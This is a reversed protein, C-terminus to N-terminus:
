LRAHWGAWLPAVKAHSEVGNRVQELVPRADVLDLIQGSIAVQSDDILRFSQGQKLPSFQQLLLAPQTMGRAWFEVVLVDVKYGGRPMLGERAFAWADATDTAKRTAQKGREIAAEQSEGEFRTLQRRGGSEIIVFPVLLEGPEVDSISWAAHALVFGGLTLAEVPIQV